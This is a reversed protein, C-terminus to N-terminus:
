HWIIKTELSDTQVEKNQSYVTFAASGYAYGQQFKLGLTGIGSQAEKRSDDSSTSFNVDTVFSVKLSDKKGILQDRDNNEQSFTCLVCGLFYLSFLTKTKM